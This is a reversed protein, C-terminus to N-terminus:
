HVGGGSASRLSPLQQYSPHYKNNNSLLISVTCTHWGMMSPAAQRKCTEKYIGGMVVIMSSAANICLTKLSANKTPTSTTHWGIM